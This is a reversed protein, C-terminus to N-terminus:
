NLLPAYACVNSNQPSFWTPLFVINRKHCSRSYSVTTKFLSQIEVEASGSESCLSDKREMIQVALFFMEKEEQSDTKSALWM